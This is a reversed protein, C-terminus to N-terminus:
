KMYSIFVEAMKEVSYNQKCFECIQGRKNIWYDKSRYFNFIENSLSDISNTNFFISNKHEKVAEIEPSHKEDRSVIMPVGFGFSQTVSLGIYGPSASVLSSNYMEKLKNYDSVHGKVKVRELLKHKNIYNEIESKEEGDGVIILNAEPPLKPLIKHFAKTLFFAKKTKTLRGVYIINNISEKNQTVEMESKYFVSNPASNIIKDPMKNQLEKKQTKTYVVIEDALIRMLNRVIDTKSKSGARPWAHGWLITKRRLVKRTLLILWNSIIRPNMELVMTNKKVVINWMGTQFLLRRYFLFHNKVKIRIKIKEDSKISKEFHRRGGYLEFSNISITDIYSFVKGRYDPIVTQLIILKKM